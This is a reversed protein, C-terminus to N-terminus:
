RSQQAAGQDLLPQFGGLILRKGDFPMEASALRPDTMVRQNGQDRAEKSPWEIWSFVVSEGEAAKVAGYFDTVKGHPVDDQWCEVVRLAGHELFIPAALAALAKYAERKESPVPTVFGDIYAM